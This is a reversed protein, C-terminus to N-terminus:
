NGGVPPPALPLKPFEEEPQELELEEFLVGPSVVSCGIVFGGAGIQAFPVGNELYEFLAEERSAALIDKFSRANLGRFRLGRVLEERGDPYVRYVLVPMSVPRAGSGRSGRPALRRLQESSAASPFDMKRVLIGYPKGQQRVMDILRKKLDALPANQNARVMLNGFHAGRAGFAGPMRAHGNTESAGRVPTRTMLFNKLMGKEVLTLPHPLQGELDVRYYGALAHGQWEKATPDDMVDMWEPLVRSNLRGEFDSVPFNFNRGPEAVPRRPIALNAGFVEAFLQGAAPPEFLVPGVYGEGVPAAALATLHTGVEEVVSRLGSESPFLAPDPGQISVGDALPMGDPAQLSARTQLIVIRDPVRVITNESNVYYFSGDGLQYEVSSSTVNPFASYLSSLSRVRATWAADDAHTTKVEAILHQNAAPSFDPIPDSVNLARTAARKRSFAEVAAKYARDTSLWLAHRLAYLNDDIPLQDSDYRTGSYFDTFISDSSDFKADGVRVSVRLARVHSRSERILAGLSASVGYLLADDVSYDMYYVPDVIKLRDSRNMEEVMARLLSDPKGEERSPAVAAAPPKPAPAPAATQASAFGPVLMWILLFSKM